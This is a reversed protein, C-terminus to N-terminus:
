QTIGGFRRERKSYIKIAKLLKKGDFDPWYVKPFYLESYAIQLMMFNSLREEGSTRIILDPEPLFNTDLNQQIDFYQIEKKGSKIIKNVARVIEDHGGYNLAFTIVIKNNKETEKETKLLQHKLDDPFPSIEGIHKIQVGLNQFKNPNNKLYLRILDFIGDIEDQSRKWNETSFAFMSAYPIKYKILAKVTKRVAEVGAKHGLSRSLGRKKAWRGNGDLIFGIHKPTKILYNKLIKTM